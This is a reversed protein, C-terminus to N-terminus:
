PAVRPAPALKELEASSDDTKGRSGLWRGFVRSIARGTGAAASTKKESKDNAPPPDPPEDTFK